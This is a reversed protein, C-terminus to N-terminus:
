FELFQCSVKDKPASPKPSPWPTSASRPGTLYLWVGTQIYASAAHEQTHPHTHTCKKCPTPLILHWLGGGKDQGLGIWGEVIRHTGGRAKELRQGTSSPPPLGSSSSLSRENVTKLEKTGLGTSPVREHAFGMMCNAKLGSVEM